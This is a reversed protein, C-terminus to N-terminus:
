VVVGYGFTDVSLSDSIANNMGMARKHRALKRRPRDLCSKWTVAVVIKYYDDYYHNLLLAAM